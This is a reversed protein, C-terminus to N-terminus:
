VIEIRVTVPIEGAKVGARMREAITEATTTSCRLVRVNRTIRGMYRPAQRLWRRGVQASRSDDLALCEMAMADLKPLWQAPTADVSWTLLCESQAPGLPAVLATSGSSSATSDLGGTVGIDRALDPLVGREVM